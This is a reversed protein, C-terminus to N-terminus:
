GAAHRGPAPLAAQEAGRPDRREALNRADSTGRLLIEAATRTQSKAGNRPPGASVPQAREALERRAFRVVYTAAKGACDPHGAVEVLHEPTGGEAAYAILDPNMSTCRYGARNLAVAYPAVPNPTPQPHEHGEFAGEFDAPAGRADRANPSQEGEPSYNNAHPTQHAKKQTGNQKDPDFGMSLGNPEEASGMPNKKPRGGRKGNERAATIRVQAKEIEEDAKGNHRLGDDGIPFYRDAVKRVAAKDASKVAGAITYLEDYAAPLPQETAYYELLLRLYAGHDLMTLRGTDRLYDGPYLEFYNM